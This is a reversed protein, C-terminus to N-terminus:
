LNFRAAGCYLEGGSVLSLNLDLIEKHDSKEAALCPDLVCQIKVTSHILVLSGHSHFLLSFFLPFLAFFKM